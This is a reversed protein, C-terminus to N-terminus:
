LQYIYKEVKTKRFQLILIMKIQMKYKDEVKPKIFFFIREKQYALKCIYVHM